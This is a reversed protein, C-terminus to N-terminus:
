EGYIETARRCFADVLNNAAQNFVAGFAKNILSGSFEFALELEVKCADPRLPLFDWRGHLHKFPGERLDLEMWRDNEFRNCTSFVQLLGLRAVGIEACIQGPEDRLLRASHCWPLFRPYSAVDKVLAFMQRASYPVLASKKVLPM